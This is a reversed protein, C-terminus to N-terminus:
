AAETPYVARWMAKQAGTLREGSEELTKLAHAWGRLGEVRKDAMPAPHRECCYRHFCSLCMAGHQALIAHATVTSCRNCPMPPPLPQKGDEIEEGSRDRYKSM